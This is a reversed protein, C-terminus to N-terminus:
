NLVNLYVDERRYFGRKIIITDLNDKTVMFPELQIYPVENLGNYMTKETAIKEGEGLMVACEAARKALDEFSKFVTMNQTGEVIRQCADLDADQGTVYIQGALRKESLAWIAQQALNDNGCVVADIKKNEKVSENIALYAKEAIWEDAYTKYVVELSSKSIEKDFGEEMLKVNRDSTPGLIMVVKGNQVINQVLAEAMLTGVKENDFSIYLDVDSETILRDYAIVKIGADHAKDIIKAIKDSNLAVVVIVDVKEDIFDEIQKVQNEVEGNANETIVEAGLRNATKIFISCDKEWREAVFSDFSLGIQIKHDEVERHQQKTLSLYSGTICLIGIGVFVIIRNM